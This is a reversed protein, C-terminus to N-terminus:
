TSSIQYGLVHWEQRHRREQSALATRSHAQQDDGLERSCRIQLPLSFSLSPAADVSLKIQAFSM